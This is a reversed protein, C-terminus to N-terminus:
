PGWMSSIEETSVVVASVAIGPCNANETNMQSESGTLM